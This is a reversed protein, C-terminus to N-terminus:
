SIWTGVRGLRPRWVNLDMSFYVFLARGLIWDHPVFGWYRSDASDDRNDGMLWYYDQEVVYSGLSSLPRGDMYLFDIAEPPLNVSWPTLLHGGPSGPGYYNSFKREARDSPGALPTVLRRLRTGLGGSYRRALDYVDTLTFEMTRGLAPAKLTVHHGDMMMLPLLLDWNTEATISLTDHKAPVRLPALHDRNGGRRLFMSEGPRHLDPPLIVSDQHRGRSPLPIEQGDVFLSKGRIEILQGPEAVLRKVYKQFVDRPYKFIVVDGRHPERFSPLRTWPVSFGLDTYPVGIWDPTRMGYIFKNGLLFDGTMITTEMSGTPVIYAEVVTARLALVVALLVALSKVERWLKELRPMEFSNVLM